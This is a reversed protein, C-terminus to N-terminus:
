SNRAFRRCAYFICLATLVAGGVIIASSAIFVDGIGSAPSAISGFLFGSAGLAASATGANERESDLVIATLAPQLFGFLFMLAMYAPEVIWISSRAILAAAVAVAVAVFLVGGTRLGAYENRVKGAAACGIAIAVANAAFCLSFAMPSLGFGKQLVFPSSSIYGFLVFMSMAFAALFADYKPNRLVKAYTAFTAVLGKTSRREVPLSERVQSSMAGLLVGVALLVVFTGIWSTFELLFGGIVPSVVPAVGNVASMVAIFRTLENGTYLDTAVSRAIVIGGAATLGQFFRMANFVVIGPSYICAVTAVIFAAMSLLLPLRRGYRDSLPGILIQGVALGLMGTTLSMQAMSATTSFYEALLPLAPLYFDTVFPGFATLLGLTVYLFTYNENNRNMTEFYFVDM